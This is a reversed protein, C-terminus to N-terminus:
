TSYPRRPTSDYQFINSNLREIMESKEICDSIDVAYEDALQRLKKVSCSDCTIPYQQLVSSKNGIKIPSSKLPTRHDHRTEKIFRDKQMVEEYSQPDEDSEEERARKTQNKDAEIKTNDQIGFADAFISNAAPDKWTSYAYANGIVPDDKNEPHLFVIRGSNVFIQEMDQKEVVDKADFFVGANAMAKKLKGVGMRRLDELSDYEVPEPTVIVDVRGSDLIRHIIEDKDVGVKLRLRICLSKVEKMSMRKLEYQAFRPKRQAMRKKRGKEYNSDDTPLEYRCVPCTCHKTLWQTICHPHYIHACSLRTVKDGIKHEEFCICCERNSEDVLDESCVLITPLHSISKKSAPPTGRIQHQQFSQNTAAELASDFVNFPSPLNIGETRNHQHRSGQVQNFVSNFFNNM